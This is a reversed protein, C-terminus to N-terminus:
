SIINISDMCLALLSTVIINYVEINPETAHGSPALPAQAGGGGFCDQHNFKKHDETISAFAQNREM